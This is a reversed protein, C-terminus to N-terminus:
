ESHATNMRTGQGMGGALGLLLWFLFGARAGLTVADTLGYVFSGVLAAAIGATLVRQWVDDAQRWGLWLLWGSAVWLAIYATLGVLGLDLAAQLLHNHAHAIDIGLPLQIYPYLIPAVHRFMNFGMGTLPFDQIGLSARQWIEQRTALTELSFTNGLAEGEIEQTTFITALVQDPGFAVLGILAVVFLGGLIPLLWRRYRTAIALLFLIAAALGLLGSRSQTLVLVALTFLTGAFVALCVWWSRGTRVPLGVWERRYFLCGWTLALAPPVVWLLVGALENPSVGNITGPLQLAQPLRGTIAALPPFKNQWNTALLGLGAMAVGSSLLTAVGWWLQRRNQHAAETLAFFLAIGVLLNTSRPVSHAPDPTVVLSMALTIMLVLIPLNLPTDPVFRGTARKRVLWLMPLLVLVALGGATSFMVLPLLALLLVWEFQALHVLRM